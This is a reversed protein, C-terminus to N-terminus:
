IISLNIKENLRKVVNNPTVEKMALVIGSSILAGLYSFTGRHILLYDAIAMSALDNDVTNPEHIININYKQNIKHVIENYKEMTKNLIINKNNLFTNNKHVGCVIKITHLKQKFKIKEILNNISKSIKNTNDDGMDGFRLHIVLQYKKINNINAYDIVIKRLLEQNFFKDLTLNERPISNIYKSLITGPFYKNIHRYLLRNSIFSNYWDKYNIVTYIPINFLNGLNYYYYCKSNSEDTCDNDSLYVGDTLSIFDQSNTKLNKNFYESRKNFLIIITLIILNILILYLILM